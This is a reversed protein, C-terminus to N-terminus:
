RQIIFFFSSVREIRWQLKRSFKAAADRLVDPRTQGLPNVPIIISEIDSGWRTGVIRLDINFVISTQGRIAEDDCRSRLDYTKIKLILRM